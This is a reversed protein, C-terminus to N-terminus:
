TPQLNRRLAQNVQLQGIITWFNTALFKVIGCNAFTTRILMYTALGVSCIPLASVRSGSQQQLGSEM